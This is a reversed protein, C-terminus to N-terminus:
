PTTSKFAAGGRRQTERFPRPAPIHYQCVGEEDKAQGQVGAPWSVKGNMITRSETEGRTSEFKLTMPQYVYQCPARAVGM